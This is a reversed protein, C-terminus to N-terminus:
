KGEEQDSAEEDEAPEDETPEDDTRFLQDLMGNSPEEPAEPEVPAPAVPPAPPTIPPQPTPDAHAAHQATALTSANSADDRMAQRLEEVGMGALERAAQHSHKVYELVVLTAIVILCWLMWLFLLTASQERVLWAIVGLVVMGAFGGLLTLRLLTPYRELFPRGRRIVEDRFEERDALAHIVDTLRYGSGVVQVDEAILLDTTAIERNFLRNLDALRRRLVLGLIWALVVFISLKGMFVWWHGDYFGAITERMADIGYTFPLFPYVNRFFSPMLEIPYLGSAGPISMVVILICIGRGVHGFSVSLAYIISIYALAILVSTGLYAAASVTQIGIVLNGASVVLAQLVAIIAFLLFRGVYAQRVSIPEVGETDVEVKFIVMLVFSGIWLSLNAFLAAMGSGYTDVPFVAHEVVDVPTAIFQAIQDPNLGTLTSLGDWSSASGIAALDSRATGLGDQIGELNGDLSDLADSTAVLQTDVGDLLVGAQALQEQQADIASSFGDVSSSLASMASNLAPVSDTLADRLSRASTQATQAADDLTDATKQVGDVAAATDTNVTSLDLLLDQNAQNHKELAALVDQLKQTLAEDLYGEDLVDQINKISQANMEAADTLTDIATGVKANAQGLAQTVQTVSVHAKASADALMTAGDVYAATVDDTFSLLESQAESVTNKAQALATQVDGLTSDVDSLTKEAGSLSDRSEAIGAKTETIRDRASDVSKTAKDFANLGSEQVSDLKDGVTVGADKLASTAAEAAEEVFASTIQRELGDAGVDTVKPAIASAKENVLYTLAPQTFEGSTISLLDSSFDKPIVIAAYVKGSRVSEKAEDEGMFQWGLQDNEKLQDVVQAGVDVPGTLESDAGEDLNAVAVAINGTAGYPDWFAIINFWAYLAPTVIVGIVIIWTRPAHFIRRADRRLVQLSKLM